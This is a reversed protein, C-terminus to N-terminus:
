SRKPAGYLYYDLNRSFDPPLGRAQGALFEFREAVTAPLKKKSVRKTISRATTRTRGNDAPEHKNM